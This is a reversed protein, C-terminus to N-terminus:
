DYYFSHIDSTDDYDVHIGHGALLVFGNEEDQAFETVDEYPLDERTCRGDDDFSDICNGIYGTM